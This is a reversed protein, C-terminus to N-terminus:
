TSGLSRVARQAGVTSSVSTLVSAAPQPHGSETEVEIVIISGDGTIVRVGGDPTTGARRGIVAGQYTPPDPELHTRWVILPKGDFTTHAGAYPRTTARVLDHIRQSPWTWDITFDEPGLKTTFTAATHDQSHGTITGNLLDPM